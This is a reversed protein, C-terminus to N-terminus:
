GPMITIVLSSTGRTHSPELSLAQTGSAEFISKCCLYDPCALPGFVDIRPVLDRPSGAFIYVGCCGCPQYRSGM